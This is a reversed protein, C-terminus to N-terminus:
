IVKYGISIEWLIHPSISKGAKHNLGFYRDEPSDRQNILGSYNRNVIRIGAGGSYEFVFKRGLDIQSGGKISIGSVKTKIFAYDFRYHKNNQDVYGSNVENKSFCNRFLDLGIYSNEYLPVYYRFEIKNKFGNTNTEQSNVHFVFPFYFGHRYLVSFDKKRIEVSPQITPYNVDFISLVNLLPTVSIVNKRQAKVSGTFFIQILTIIVISGVYKHLM